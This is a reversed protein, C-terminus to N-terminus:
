GGRLEEVKPKILSMADKKGCCLHMSSRWDSGGVKSKRFWKKGKDM